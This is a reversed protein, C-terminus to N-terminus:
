RCSPAPERSRPAATKGHRGTSPPAFAPDRRALASPWWFRPGTDLILAPVLLSRLVLTDLLVGFAVAFGIQTLVVLPIVALAAFTGALVLGASTIVSGTAALGRLVGDRSGHSQAEERIRASLFITYDTGLAALFVFSLLPFTPDAAAFDFVHRFALTSVGLTATFGTVVAAILLLPGVLARLLAALILFVVGLALPPILLNDRDAAERLDYKQATPGGVLAGPAAQEVASRVAPISRPATQGYPDSTLAATLHARGDPAREALRASAVLKPRARLARLAADARAAPAIVDVPASSGAPFRQELLKQGAVAEPPSHFQDTPSLNTTLGLSGASLALLAALGAAWVLRPRRAIRGGLQRWRKHAAPDGAGPRPIRPWFARRGAVLLAAPLLTLAFLMAVLVGMAGVPGLSASSSVRAVTLTLLAAIVTLASAAISPAAARLARRMAEHTDARRALEERYRAVILLAYDTGVGFVLVPLIGAGQADITLGARTLLYAGGQAAGVGLLVCVFPIAWFIPSRYILILLVLVLAGAALLLTTDIGSLQANTDRVFAAAGTVKVEAGHSSARVRDRLQQVAPDTANEDAGSRLPVVLLAADGRPSLEPPPVPLGHPLPRRNLARRDARIQARDRRTLGGPRRFVVVASTRDGTPFGKLTELTKVSQSSGPLFAATDNREAGSLNGAQSVLAVAVFLAVALVVLKSRRGAAAVLLSM